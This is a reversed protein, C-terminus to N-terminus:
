KTITSDWNVLLNLASETLSRDSGYIVFKKGDTTVDYAPSTFVNLGVGATFLKRPTGLQVGGPGISISVEFIEGANNLFYLARGDSRWRPGSVGGSAVEIKAGPGPFPAVYVAAPGSEQSTFAIWKGDPSFRGDREWAPTAIVSFPKSGPATSVAYIDTTGPDGEEFLIYKGDRSWDTPNQYHGTPAVTKPPSSGDLVAVTLNARVDSSDNGSIDAFALQRGDPSWVPTYNRGSSTVRTRGSGNLDYIWLDSTPDGKEIALRRGDPSLRPNRAAPDDLVSLRQGESSFWRIRGSFDANANGFVLLGNESASLLNRWIGGDFYAAFPLHIPDGILKGAGADFRQAVLETATNYLLYGSAYLVNSSTQILRQSEKRDLSGEYIANVAGKAANHNGALYLFHKGDPLFVPWRHTTHESLITTVQEPTGGGAPVKFIPAQISPTFIIFGSSGWSAGRGNTADCIVSVAGTSLQLVRMKGAGFFGIYKSDPSWFPFYAGATNELPMYRGTDAHRLWLQGGAGFVMQSGDPSLVPPAAADGIFDFTKDGPPLIQAALPTRPEHNGRLVLAAVLLAVAALTTVRPLWKKKGATATATAVSPAVGRVERLQLKVDHASAYREEPDKALCTRVIVDLAPPSAPQVHGIPEPDKELIASAVSIQSKGEFARRGTVMEYLVAGFAFIDSRADAEKGEIQEPSMYQVTGVIAGASTLPSGHPSPSTMTVAASLLPASNASSAAKAALPKALGFDLLKAGSRTLMINGPKLDRHVLGARHAKDLADAIECGLRVMQDIPLPGRKIRDALTEGELFEMVLFDIGSDSGVDHLVCINPHQLGSLTRAEREFRQKLDPNGSVEAPLVKIAVTRELRIDRARYVEGMGGAGASSVIEYPGLKSGAALV